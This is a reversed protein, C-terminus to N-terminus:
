GLLGTTIVIALAEAEPEGTAPYTAAHCESVGVLKAVAGNFIHDSGIIELSRQQMLKPQVMLIQNVDLAALLLDDGVFTGGAHDFFDDTLRGNQFFAVLMHGVAPRAERGNQFDFICVGVDAEVAFHQAKRDVPDVPKLVFERGIGAHASAEQDGVEALM